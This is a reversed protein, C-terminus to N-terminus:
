EQKFGVDNIAFGITDLFFKKAPLGKNGALEIADIQSFDPVEQNLFQAAL